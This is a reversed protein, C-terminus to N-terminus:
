RPFSTDVCHVCSAQRTNCRANFLSKVVESSRGYIPAAHGLNNEKYSIYTIVLTSMNLFLCFISKYGEILYVVEVPRPFVM